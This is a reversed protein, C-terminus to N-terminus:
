LGEANEIRKRAVTGARYTVKKKRKKRKTENREGRRLSTLGGSVAISTRLQLRDGDIARAVLNSILEIKM